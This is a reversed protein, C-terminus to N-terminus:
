DKTVRIEIKGLKLLWRPATREIKIVDRDSSSERDLVTYNVPMLKKDDGIMFVVPLDQSGPPMRVWTARGDDFVHMRKFDDSGEIKYISIAAAELPKATLEQEKLRRAESAQLANTRDARARGEFQVREDDDPYSFYAKQIRESSKKTSVLEFQYTRKSTVLTLSTMTDEKLAKIYLNKENGSIRWQITEGLKPKEILEEDAGLQVHTHMGVTVQLTYVVDPSYAYTRVRSDLDGPVPASIDPRVQGASSNSAAQQATEAKTAAFAICPLMALALCIPHINFPKNM